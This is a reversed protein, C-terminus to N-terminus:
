HLNSQRRNEDHTRLSDRKKTYSEILASSVETNTVVAELIRGWFRVREANLTHLDGESDKLTTVYYCIIEGLRYPRMLRLSLVEEENRNDIVYKLLADALPKNYLVMFNIFRAWGEYKNGFRLSSHDLLYMKGDRIRFNHPVFDTHTLFNGYRDLTLAGACLEQEVTELLPILPANEPDEQITKKFEAFTKSYAAANKSGFTKRILREHEYTSAHAREQAKFAELAYSFQEEIPRSLFPPQDIFTHISILFSKKTVFVLEEPSLFTHYAFRIKKLVEKCLREHRLERKWRPDRTAKIVVRLGDSERTGLLIFKKGSVTTVARMLYREGGLHPQEEDLVYGLTSLLPVLLNLEKERQSNWTTLANSM